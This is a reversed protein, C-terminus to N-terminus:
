NSKDMEEVFRVGRKKLPRRGRNERYNAKFKRLDAEHILWTNHIKEAPLRGSRCLRKVTEPHLELFAAAEEVQFYEKLVPM